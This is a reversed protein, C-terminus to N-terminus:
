GKDPAENITPASIATVIPEAPAVQPMARIDRATDDKAAAASRFQLLTKLIKFWFPAGMGMLVTSILLGMWASYSMPFHWSTPILGTLVLQRAASPVRNVVSDFDGGPQAPDVQALVNIAQESLGKRLAEDMSLRQLIAITDINLAFAVLFAFAFTYFRLNSTFAQTVRDMSQDFWAHVEGVLHCAANEIVATTKRVSEALDPRAAELRLATLHIADLTAGPDSIGARQFASRVAAVAAQLRPDASESAAFELLLQTLEERQIVDAMKGNANAILPHKLIETSILEAHPALKADVQAILRTLGRLLFLGRMNTLGVIIQTLTMVIVSGLLMVLSIGILVDLTKLM